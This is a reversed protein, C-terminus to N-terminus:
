PAAIEPVNIHYGLLRPPDATDYVFTEVGEGNAFTTTYTLTVQSGGTDYNVHWGTQRTSKVPGLTRRTASIFALFQPQPTLDKLVHSSKAFIAGFRGADYDKHFTAVQAEAADMEAGAHCSALPLAALIPSFSKHM